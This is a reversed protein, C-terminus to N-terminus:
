TDSVASSHPPYFDHNLCLMPLSSMFHVQMRYAYCIGCELAVLGEEEVANASVPGPRSPLTALSLACLVNEM